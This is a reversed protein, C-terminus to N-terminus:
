TGLVDLIAVGGWIPTSGDYPGVCIFLYDGDTCIAGPSDGSAGTRAPTRLDIRSAIQNRNLPYIDLTAGCNITALKYQLEGVGAPATVQNSYTTNVDPYGNSGYNELVRATTTMGGTLIAGANFTSDPFYVTASTNAITLRIELNSQTGSPGWGAFSITTDKDITGYQVDGKSVDIMLASPISSGLNFTTARFSRISANSILTNAMDNNLTIGSLGSKVIVKNQLDTIETKATDINNKISTFNDRFGQTSNNVGPTPYSVNLNNTNIASM